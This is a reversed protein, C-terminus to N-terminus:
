RSRRPGCRGQRQAPSRGFPTAPRASPPRRSTVARLYSPPSVGAAVDIYIAGGAQHTIVFLLSRAVHNTDRWFMAYISWGTAAAIGISVLTDMTSTGHRARQIAAKYFPWAAWTVVPAAM